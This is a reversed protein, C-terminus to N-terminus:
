WLGWSNTRYVYIGLAFNTTGHAVICALVDKRIIWLSAMLIGYVFAAPWEVVQHGLMFAITSFAVAFLSWQGPGVSNLSKDHMVHELANSTTKRTEFWQYAIRFIFVRTLLEEFVAVLLTAAILRLVFALMNWQEAAPDIFPKLLLVWLVTGIIGFCVGYISSVFGNKPGRFPVYWRWSWVILASVVIIRILYNWEPELGGFLNAILVYAFYPATYPLILRYNSYSPNSKDHSSSNM